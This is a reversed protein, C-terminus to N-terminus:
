TYHISKNRKISVFFLNLISMIHLWHRNSLGYNDYVSNSVVSHKVVHYDNEQTLDSSLNCSIIRWLILSM